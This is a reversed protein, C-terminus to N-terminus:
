NMILILLQKLDFIESKNFMEELDYLTKESNEIEKSYMHMINIQDNIDFNYKNDIWRAVNLEKIILYSMVALTVKSYLEEDFVSKM